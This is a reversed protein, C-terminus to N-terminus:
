RIHSSECQASPPPFLWGDAPTGPMHGAAGQRLLAALSESIPVM